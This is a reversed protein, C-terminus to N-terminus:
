AQQTESHWARALCQRVESDSTQEFHRYWQGVAQFTAPAFLCVLQDVERRIAACTDPAGVPVAMSLRAAGKARAVAIAARMSAGTAMGDDVLIVHRAQLLPEARGGRYLQARQAILQWARECAHAIVDESVHFARVVEDNMIRIGGDGVAGMAFEEHGPLGLKRVLLVDFPLGLCRALAYGVPVGGRPLALVISAADPAPAETALAMALQEGAQRRDHFGSRPNM